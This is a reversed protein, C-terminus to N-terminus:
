ACRGCYEPHSGSSRKRGRDAGDNINSPLVDIVAIPSSVVRNDKVARIEVMLKGPAVAMQSTIDFVAENDSVTVANNYVLTGDPKKAFIRTEAGTIDFVTGNDLLRVGIQRGTDYQKCKVVPVIEAKYLDVTVHRITEM